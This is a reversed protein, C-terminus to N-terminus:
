LSPIKIGEKKKHNKYDEILLNIDIDLYKILELFKIFSNIHEYNIWRQLTKYEINLEKSIKTLKIDLQKIKNKLCTM